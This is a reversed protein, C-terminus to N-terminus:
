YGYVGAGPRRGTDSDEARTGMQAMVWGASLVQKLLERPNARQADEVLGRVLYARLPNDPGTPSFGDLVADLDEWTWHPLPKDQTEM